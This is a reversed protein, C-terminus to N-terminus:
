LGGGRYAALVMDRLRIWSAPDTIEIVTRWAGNRAQQQPMGVWPDGGTQQIVRVESILVPGVKVQCTAKLAGADCCRISVIDIPPRSQASPMYKVSQGNESISAAAGREDCRPKQEM